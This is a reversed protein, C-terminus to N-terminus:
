SESNKYYESIYMGVIAAVLVAIYFQGVIAELFALSRATPSIPVIDGYGLTSLTVFSMYIFEWLQVELTATEIGKFSGPSFSYLFFYIYAWNLGILLYICIAGIIKNVSIPERKFLHGTAIWMSLSYFIMLIVLDLYKLVPMDFSMHTTTILIEILALGLGLRFWKKSGLLSWVGLMITSSIALQIIIHNAFRTHEVAAPSAMLLVLLGILLYFFNNQQVITVM